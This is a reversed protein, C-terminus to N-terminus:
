AGAREQGCTLYMVEATAADVPEAWGTGPVWVALYHMPRNFADARTLTSDRAQAETDGLPCTGRAVAVFTAPDLERWQYGRSEGDITGVNLRYYM